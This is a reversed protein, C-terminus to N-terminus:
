YYTDGGLSTMASPKGGLCGLPSSDEGRDAPTIGVEKHPTIPITDMMLTKLLVTAGRFSNGDRKGQEWDRGASMERFLPRGAASSTETM